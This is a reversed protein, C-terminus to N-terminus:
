VYNKIISEINKNIKAVEKDLIEYRRINKEKIVTQLDEIWNDPKLTFFHNSSLFEHLMYHKQVNRVSCNSCGMPKTDHEINYDYWGDKGKRLSIDVYDRYNIKGKNNFIICYIKDGHELDCLREKLDKKLKRGKLEDNINQQISELEEDTKNELEIM